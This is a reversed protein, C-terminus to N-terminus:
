LGMAGKMLPVALPDKSAMAVGTYVNNREYVYPFLKLPIRYNDRESDHLVVIGTPKLLLYSLTMCDCRSRGDVFILDYIDLKGPLCRRLPYTIYGKSRSPEMTHPVYVIEVQPDKEFESQAKKFYGPDHEISLIVSSPSTERIIHTSLGPGWELVNRPKFTQCLNSLIEVHSDYPAM